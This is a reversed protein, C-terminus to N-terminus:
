TGEKGDLADLTAKLGTHADTWWGADEDHDLLEHAAEVVARLRDREAALEEIQDVARDLQRGRGEAIRQIIDPRVISAPTLPETTEGLMPDFADVSRALAHVHALREGESADPDSHVRAWGKAAAVLDRAAARLRDREACVAEVDAILRDNYKPTDPEGVQDAEDWTLPVGAATAVREAFERVVALAADREYEAADREAILHAWRDRLDDDSM